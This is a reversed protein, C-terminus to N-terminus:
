RHYKRKRHQSDAPWTVPDQRYYDRLVAYADPHHVTLQHPNEFFVETLVAFFEAANTAGYCDIFGHHGRRCKEVLRDYEPGLVDLWRQVEDDAELPPVGDTLRGNMMDLQHAFEHFVLNQGPSNRRGAALVEHWSLIVPGRWWAEGLRAQGGEVVVGARGIEIGSAVYSNPYVLVSLVHDFYVDQKLELVLLCALAAITVKVEDTIELGRCGEWNKEAVFIQIKQRLRHLQDETLHASHRVNTTIIEHWSEPFPQALIRRRRRRRLWDFFM